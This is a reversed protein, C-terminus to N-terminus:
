SQLLQLRPCCYHFCAFHCCASCCRFYAICRHFYASYRLASYRRSCPYYAFCHFGRLHDKLPRFQRCSPASPEPDIPHFRLLELLTPQPMEMDKHMLRPLKAMDKHKLRPMEMGTRELQLKAMDMHALIKKETDRHATFSM